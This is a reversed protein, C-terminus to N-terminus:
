SEMEVADIATLTKNLLITHGEPWGMLREAETPTIRRVSLRTPTPTPTPTTDNAALARLATDLEAPLSRGRKEARRLIGKAARASLYFRQPASPELVDTLRSESSSCEGDASRCESTALTSFGTDWAMGSNLWRVSSSRWTKGKIVLSFDQYTKSSSSPLDTDNLWTLFPSPSDAAPEQGWGEASERSLSTKVPSDAQGSLLVTPVARGTDLSPGASGADWVRQSQSSDAGGGTLSGMLPQSYGNLTPTVEYDLHERHHGSGDIMEAVWIATTRTTSLPQSQEGISLGAAAAAQWNFSVISTETTDTRPSTAQLPRSADLTPSKQGRKPSSRAPM